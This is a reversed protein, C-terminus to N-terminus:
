HGFYHWFSVLILSTFTLMLWFFGFFWFLNGYVTLSLDNSLMNQEYLTFQM